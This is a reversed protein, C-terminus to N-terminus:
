NFIFNFIGKFSMQFEKKIYQDYTKFMVFVYHAKDKRERATARFLVEAGNYVFLYIIFFYIYLDDSVKSKM